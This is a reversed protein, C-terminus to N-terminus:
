KITKMHFYLVSLQAESRHNKHHDQGTDNVISGHNCYNNLLGV